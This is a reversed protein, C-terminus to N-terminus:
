AADGLDMTAGELAEIVLTVTAPTAGKAALVQERMAVVRPVESHMVERLLTRVVNAGLPSVRIVLSRRM